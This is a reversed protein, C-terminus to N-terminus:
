KPIEGRVRDEPRVPPRDSLLDVLKLFVESPPSFLGRRWIREHALSVGLYDAVEAPGGLLEEARQLLKAHLKAM